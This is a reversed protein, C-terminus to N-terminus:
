IHTVITAVGIAILVGCKCQLHLRCATIPLRCDCDCDCDSACDISCASMCRCALKLRCDLRAFRALKCQWQGSVNVNSLCQRGKSQGDCHKNSFTDQLPTRPEAVRWSGQFLYFPKCYCCHSHAVFELVFLCVCVRQLSGSAAFTFHLSYVFIFFTRQNINDPVAVVSTCM